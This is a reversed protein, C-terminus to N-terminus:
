SRKAHARWASPDSVLAVSLKGGSFVAGGVTLRLGLFAGYPGAPIPMCMVFQGRQLRGLAIAGTSGHVTPSTFSGNPASVISLTATAAGASAASETCAAVLFLGDLQRGSVSLNFNDGFMSAGLGFGSLSLETCIENRSDTIM